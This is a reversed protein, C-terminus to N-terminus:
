PDHVVAAVIRWAPDNKRFTYTLGFRRLETGDARNWSGVGRVMALTDSLVLVTLNAFASNAYGDAHLGAMVKRFFAAVDSGTQLTMAVQPSVFLCPEHYYPVVAEPRLTEFARVYLRFTELIADRESM